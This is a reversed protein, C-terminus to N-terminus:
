EGCAVSLRYVEYNGTRLNRATVTASGASEGAAISIVPGAIGMEAAPTAEKGNAANRLLLRDESAFDGGDSDLWWTQTGCSPMAMLRGAPWDVSSAACALASEDAASVECRKGPLLIGIQGSIDEAVMVQGRASRQPARPAPLAKSRQLKWNGAAGGYVQLADETLVALWKEGGAGAAPLLAASLIRTEQQWLLERELRVRNGGGEEMGVLAREVEEIVVNSSGGGPVMATFVIRSPTQEIAVRLALATEGQVLKVQAAELREAFTARLREVRADSLAAHNTWVLSMRREHPLAAMKKALREVGDELADPRASAPKEILIQLIFFFIACACACIPFRRVLKKNVPTFGCRLV